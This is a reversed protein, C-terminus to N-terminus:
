PSPVPRQAQWLISTIILGLGVVSSVHITEGLIGAILALSLFPAVYVWNAAAGRNPALELGRLWWVFTLGMEMAGIYVLWGWEGLTPLRVTSVWPLLALTYFSGFAFGTTLKVVGDRPDRVNVLWYSAWVVTSGLALAVGLPDQIHLTQWQGGAAILVVGLASVGLALITRGRLKEGLIPVALLALTLPWLYNLALAAQAPLRAYAQFLLVYYACPNLFGQLASLRLQSLSQGSVLPLKGQCIVTIGLVLFSALSAGALLQWPDLTMLAMKFATAVTSWGLVALGIYLYARQPVSTLM